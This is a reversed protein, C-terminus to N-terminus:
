AFLRFLEFIVFNILNGGQDIASIMAAGDPMKFNATVGMETVFPGMVSAMLLSMSIVIVGALVSHVINGRAAAVIMAVIFPITALDGFPLVNNGPLIVALFLTIPVLILATAIVAPHGTTVAADLGIYINAQESDEGFRKQLFERAAESVPILGEMLLKVMRPMLVMVGAMAMGVHVIEGPAYGALAGLVCGLILGMFIPEGFIGFKQQIYDPDAKLDKIVPIKQILWILPIGIPAYSCTSGTPVSVGELEFYKEMYPATWDAIKLTVIEFLVAAIIALAFSQSLAYVCAGCFTFHWYNWIDVDMTKTTKTMLMVVNVLLGVPLIIAAIPSAWSISASGPWGVDIMNLQIGFNAVMAQAAPGLNDVLLGVVLGIGVFGVGITLGSRFATGVGCGFGLGIIFIFVPLIVTPGLALFAQVLQTANEM